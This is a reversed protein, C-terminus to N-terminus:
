SMANLILLAPPNRSCRAVPAHEIEAPRDLCFSPSLNICLIVPLVPVVEAKGTPLFGM